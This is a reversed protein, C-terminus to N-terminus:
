SSSVTRRGTMNKLIEALNAACKWLIETAGGLKLNFAKYKFKLVFFVVKKYQFKLIFFNDLM